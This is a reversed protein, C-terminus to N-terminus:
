CCTGRNQMTFQLSYCFYSIQLIEPLYTLKETVVKLCSRNMFALGSYKIENFLCSASLETWKCLAIVSYYLGGFFNIACHALICFHRGALKQKAVEM